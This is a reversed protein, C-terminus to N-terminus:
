RGNVAIAVPRVLSGHGGADGEGKGREELVSLARAIAVAAATNPGGEGISGGWDLGVRRKAPISSHLGLSAPRSRRPFGTLEPM